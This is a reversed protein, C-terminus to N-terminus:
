PVAVPTDALTRMEDSGIAVVLHDFATEDWLQAQTWETADPARDYIGFTLTAMAGQERTRARAEPSLAFSAIMKARTLGSTLRGVWYTRGAADAPRGLVRQYVQDVAQGNALNQHWARVEPTNAFQEAIRAATTGARRRAVWFALGGTDPRRQLIGAYLTTVEAPAGPREVISGLVEAATLDWGVLGEILEAREDPPLVSGTVAVAVRDVMDVATDFPSWEPGFSVEVSPSVRSGQSVRLACPSAACDWFPSIDLFRDIQVDADFGGDHDVEPYPYAQLQCSAPAAPAGPGTACLEVKVGYLKDGWWATEYTGPDWGTGSVRVTGQDPLRDPADVTLTGAAWTYTGTAAFSLPVEDLRVTEAGAAVVALTCPEVTCDVTEVESGVEGLAITRNADLSTSITGDPAATVARRRDFYPTVPAQLAGMTLFYADSDICGEAVCDLLHYVEGPEFGTGTVRLHHQDLLGTTPTVTLTPTAQAGAPAGSWGIAGTLALGALAAARWVRGRGVM